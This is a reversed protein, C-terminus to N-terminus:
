RGQHQYASVRRRAHDRGKQEVAWKVAKLFFEAKQGKPEKKKAAKIGTAEAGNMPKPESTLNVVCTTVPENYKEDRGIEIQPLTFDWTLNCAEDRFKVVLISHGKDTKSFLWECDCAAHLGSHGRM